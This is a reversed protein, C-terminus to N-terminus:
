DDIVGPADRVSARLDTDYVYAEDNNQSDTSFEPDGATPLISTFSRGDDPQSGYIKREM